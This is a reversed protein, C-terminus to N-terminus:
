HSSNLRTSKREGALQAVELELLRDGDVRRGPAPPHLEAGIRRALFRDLAHGQADLLEQGLAHLEVQGRGVGHELRALREAEFGGAGVEVACLRRVVAERGPQRAGALLMRPLFLRAIEEAVSRFLTPYPLLTDTLTSRPPRRIM